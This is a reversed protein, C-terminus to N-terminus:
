HAIYMTSEGRLTITPNGFIFTIVPRYPATVLVRVRDQMQNGGDPWTVEIAVEDLDMGVLSPRIVAAIPHDDEAAPAAYADPGWPGLRDALSGHVIARRAGQRAAQAVQHHRFVGIGLDVMGLVLTLFVMLVLATELM